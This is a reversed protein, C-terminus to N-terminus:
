SEVQKEKGMKMWTTGFEMMLHGAQITAEMYKLMFGSVSNSYDTDYFHIIKYNRM